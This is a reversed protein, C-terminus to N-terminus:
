NHKEKHERHYKKVRKSLDALEEKSLDPLHEMKDLFESLTNKRRLEMMQNFFSVVASTFIAIVVVAFVSLIVSLIRALHSNVVVDGFGVTTAVAYCYWLADSFTNIHPERAWVIFACVVFFALFSAIMKLTHTEKLIKFFLRLSKM